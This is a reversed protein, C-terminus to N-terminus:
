AQRKNQQLVFAIHGIVAIVAFIFWQIAYGLHPGDSIDPETAIRQPLTAIAYGEPSEVLLVPLLDYPMRAQLKPLSIDYYASEGASSAQTNTPALTLRGTLTVSGAQNYQSLDGDAHSAPVWGRNVLVARGDEFILPAVLYIGAKGEWLQSIITVQQKFDFTGTASARQDAQQSLATADASQLALPPEALRAILQINTARRTALRDLQWLGLWVFLSVLVVIFTTRWWNRRGLFLSIM